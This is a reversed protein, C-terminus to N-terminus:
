KKHNREKRDRTYDQWLAYARQIALLFTAAITLIELVTDMPKVEMKM